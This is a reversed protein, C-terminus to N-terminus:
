GNQAIGARIAEPRFGMVQCAQIRIHCGNRAIGSAPKSGAVDQKYPLGKKARISQPAAAQLWSETCQPFDAHVGLYALPTSISFRRRQAINSNAASVTHRETAGGHKCREESRCQNGSSSM